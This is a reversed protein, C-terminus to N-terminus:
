VPLSRPRKILELVSEEAPVGIRLPFGYHGNARHVYLRNGRQGWAGHDPLGALARVATWDLGLSVLGVHGGHTHGSLVLDAAGDPLHHFAGPDHLLVIRLGEAPRVLDVLVGRMTRARDRWHFDMGVIQVKGLRTTVTASEDVLLRVGAAAMGAAVADPSELDHNGRCAFVHPHRGLPALARGLMEAEANTERTFYDGTLLILDPEAAVARECIRRLRAESMFPGLHPDSIQVVRLAVHPEGPAPKRSMGRRRRIMEPVRALREPTPSALDLTVTERRSTLSWVLGFAALLFPVWALTTVGLVGWPIALFTAVIFWSAPWTVLVQWWPPTAKGRALAVVMAYVCAQLYWFAPAAPGAVRFSATAMAAQLALVAFAPVAFRVGHRRGIVAAFTLTAALCALAFLAM